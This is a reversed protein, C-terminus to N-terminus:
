QGFFVHTGTKAYRMHTTMLVSGRAGCDVGRYTGTALEEGGLVSVCAGTEAASASDRAGVRM